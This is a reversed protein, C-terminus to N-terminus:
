AFEFNLRADQWEREFVKWSTFIEQLLEQQAELELRLQEVETSNEFGGTRLQTLVEELQSLIPLVAQLDDIGPSSRSVSRNPIANM